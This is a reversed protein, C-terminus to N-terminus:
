AQKGEASSDPGGNASRRQEDRAAREGDSFAGLDALLQDPGAAIGTEAVPSPQEGPSKISRSVRRPLGGPTTGENGPVPRPRPKPTPTAKTVAPGPTNRRQLGTEPPRRQPAGNRQRSPFPPAAAKAESATSGSSGTQPFVVTHAGSWRAEPLESVIGTPLLVTAIAGHPVRRDLRVIMGHRNAIRGVVALGMHRVSDSDLVPNASLRGNLEALREPPLGIGKDEIRLLVSGQETLHASVGVTSNPPSQNAANDLLESLLRSLDEAAFGAVGLSVMRGITIRSYHDISSMAARIVDVLTSTDSSPEGADRGALVRLNEANRRLRTALHDLRYLEGLRDQDDEKSEM